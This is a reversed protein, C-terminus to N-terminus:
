LLHAVLPLLLVTSWRVSPLFGASFPSPSPSFEPMLDPPHPEVYPKNDSPPYAPARVVAPLPSFTPRSHSAPAPPHVHPSPASAHYSPSITPTLHVQKNKRIPGNQCGSPPKAQNSEPALVPVVPFGHHPHPHHRQEPPQAHQHHHHHHHHHHGTTRPLPAPSPSPSGSGGSSDLSHQLVSSLSVQKVKGFVTNNLGLNRAHSGTITQALQKLRPLPPPLNGVTLLVSAQVTTPPYLTSGYLNTLSVYVNEYPNLHLGSKLQDKLEDFNEQIQHISFNLTFNFLVQVKQLLFANQPPIVTVGGKFKLVGFSSTNNGFLSPTLHLSSQQIVLSVFSARLLSLSASSLKTDKSVPDVAFLVNTANTRPSPDLLIVNVTSNVVGIEEFIDFELQSINGSLLSLSKQLKVMAVVDHGRFLANRDLDAQNGYRYLPPLWFIASLFLAASFLLAIVCRFRVFKSINQCTNNDVNENPIISIIAAIESSSLSQEEELKGM